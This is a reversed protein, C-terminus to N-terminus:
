LGAEWPVPELGAHGCLWRHMAEGHADTHIHGTIPDTLLSSESSLRNAAAYIGGPPCAADLLCVCVIAPCRVGAAFNVGDVYRSAQIHDPNGEGGTFDVIQPWGAPHGALPAAHDCHTPCSLALGTVREAGLHAAALAQGGGQSHGQVFLARGNWRPHRALAEVAAAARLFMDVFYLSERSERGKTRYDVLDSRMLQQYYEPKRGNEIAHANPSLVLLGARALERANDKPVSYVGAGHFRVVAPAPAEGEPELLWASVRGASTPVSAARTRVETDPEPPSLEMTGVELEALQREWFADFDSPRQLAPTIREPSVAAAAEALPESGSAAGSVNIRFVGPGPPTFKVVPTLIGSALVEAGPVGPSGTTITYWATGQIGDALFVISEGEEYVSSERDTRIRPQRTESM